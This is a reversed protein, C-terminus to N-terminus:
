ACCGNGLVCAELAKVEPGLLVAQIRVNRGFSSVVTARAVLGVACPRKGLAQKLRLALASVETAQEASAFDLTLDARWMGSTPEAFAELRRMGRLREALEPFRSGDRELLGDPRAAVSVAGREPPRLAPTSPDGRLAREVGALEARPAWILLEDGPLRYVRAYGTAPAGAFDLTTIGSDQRSWAVTAADGASLNAFQGRMVLVTGTTGPAGGHVGVWLVAARSLSRELLKAVESAAGQSVADLLLQRTPAEGLEGGLSGVDVRVAVDLDAPLPLDNARRDPARPRDAGACALSCAVV